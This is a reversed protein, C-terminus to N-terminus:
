AAESRRQIFPNPSTGFGAMPPIVPLTESVDFKGFLPRLTSRCRWHLSPINGTWYPHDVPLQLEHRETCIDTTADDIISVHRIGTVNLALSGALVGASHGAIVARETGIDISYANSKDYGANALAETLTASTVREGNAASLVDAVAERIADAIAQAAQRATAEYLKFLTAITGAAERKVDRRGASLGVRRFGDRHAKATMRAVARTVPEILEDIIADTPLGDRLAILLERRTRGILLLLILLLEDERERREREVRRVYEADTM